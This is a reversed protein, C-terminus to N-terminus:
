SMKRNKVIRCLKIINKTFVKSFVIEVWQEPAM